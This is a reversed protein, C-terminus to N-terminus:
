NLGSRIIEGDDTVLIVGADYESALELGKEKGLVFIATSLADSLLGNGYEADMVVTVSSLGSEAPYGTAPDFIHHYRVGDKEVYREYSGSTSIVYDGTLEVSDITGSQGTPDKIGIIWPDGGPKYGITRISGGAAIIGYKIDKTMKGAEDLFIGKGVAGMDLIMGEPLAIKSGASRIKDYGTKELAAQIDEDSPPFYDTGENKVAEEIGWLDSLAGLSIDFAGGSIRSLTLCSDIYDSLKDSIGKKTGDASPENLFSIESGAVHRSLIENELRDGVETIKLCVDDAKQQSGATLSYSVYTDMLVFAGEKNATKGASLLSFTNDGSEGATCGALHLATAVLMSAFLAGM